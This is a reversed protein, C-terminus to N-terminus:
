NGTGVYIFSREMQSIHTDRFNEFEGFVRFSNSLGPLFFFFFSLVRSYDVIEPVQFFFWVTTNNTAVHQEKKKIFLIIDAIIDAMELFGICVRMCWM